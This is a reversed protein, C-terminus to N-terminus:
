NIQAEAPPAGPTYEHQDDTFGFCSVDDEGPESEQYDLVVQQKVEMVLCAIYGENPADKVHADGAAYEGDSVEYVFTEYEGSDVSPMTDRDGVQTSYSYHEDTASNQMYYKTEVPQPDETDPVWQFMVHIEHGESDPELPWEESDAAFKLTESPSPEAATTDPTEDQQVEGDSGCATLALGAALTTTILTKKM